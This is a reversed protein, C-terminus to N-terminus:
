HLALPEARAHNGRGDAGTAYSFALLWLAPKEDESMEALQDIAHEVDGFREGARMREMVVERHHVFARHTGRM